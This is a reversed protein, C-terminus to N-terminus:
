YGNTAWGTGNLGEEKYVSGWDNLYLHFRSSTRLLYKGKLILTFLYMHHPEGMCKKGSMFMLKSTAAAM